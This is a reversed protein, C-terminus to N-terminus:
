RNLAVFAILVLGIIALFNLDRQGKPQSVPREAREQLAMSVDDGLRQHGQKVLPVVSREVVM